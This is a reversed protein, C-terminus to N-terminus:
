DLMILNDDDDDSIIESQFELLNSIDQSMDDNFRKIIKAQTENFGEKTRSMSSILLEVSVLLDNENKKRLPEIVKLFFPHKINILTLAKGQYTDSQFLDREDLECYIIINKLGIDSYKQTAEAIAAIPIAPLYDKLKKVLKDIEDKTLQEGVGLAELLVTYTKSTPGPIGGGGNGGKISDEFQKWERAQKSLEQNAKKIARNLAKTIRANLEQRKHNESANESTDAPLEEDPTFKISQKSNSLGLLEDLVNDDTDDTNYKLEISWFRQNEQTVNFLSYNGCTIERDNRIWSINGSPFNTTGKVKIGLQKGFKTSGGERMGPKQVDKYAIALILDIRYTKRGWHVEITEQAHEPRFFLPKTRDIYGNQKFKKFYTDRSFRHDTSSVDHSLEDIIPAIWSPGTTLYLPDNEVFVRDIDPTANNDSYNLFRIQLEDRIKYRHIRGLLREARDKLTNARVTDIRDLKTWHVITTPNDIKSLKLIKNLKIRDTKFIPDIYLTSEAKMKKFDVRNEYWEGDIKTIVCFLQCQSISSNPLGMGFVGTKVSGPLNNTESFIVCKQLISKNMGKGDDIFYIDKISGDETITLIEINKAEADVSNDIIEAIAYISNKYDSSRVKELFKPGIISVQEKM